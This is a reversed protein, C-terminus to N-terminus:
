FLGSWSPDLQIWRTPSSPSSPIEPVHLLGHGKACMLETGYWGLFTQSAQGIGIPNSLLRLCVPCRQQQDRLVWRIGMLWAAGLAPAEVHIHAVAGLISALDLAGLAVAPLALAMKAVLFAWQRPRGLGGGSFSPSLRTVLWSVVGLAALPFWPSETKVPLFVCDFETYSGDEDPLLMHLLGGRRLTPSHLRALVFGPADAAITASQADDEVLWADVQGPLRWTYDDVVGAIAVRSAPFELIRGAPNPVDRWYKRWATRNLILAPRASPIPIKLMEFFSASTRAISLDVSQHAAITARVRVPQYFALESFRSQASRTWSLYQGSSITTVPTSPPRHASVIVVGRTDADASRLLNRGGPAQYAILLSAALLVALFLLCEVPSEWRFLGGDAQRPAYRRVWLADPFAGLCFQVRARPVYWLESRWEALWEARHEAPVLLAALRLIALDVTM